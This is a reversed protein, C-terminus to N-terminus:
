ADMLLAQWEEPSNFNALQHMEQNTVMLAEAELDTLLRRISVGRFSTLIPTVTRFWESAREDLCLKLPLPHDVFHAIGGRTNLLRRLLHPSLLPMDVPSVIWTSPSITTLCFERLAVLSAVPGADPVIDQLGGKRGGILVPAAGMEALLVAMYELLSSGRYRLLAKDSGMRSSKGGALILGGFSDSLNV